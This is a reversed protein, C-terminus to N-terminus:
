GTEGGGRRGAIRESPRTVVASGVYSLVMPTTRVTSEPWSGAVLAVM